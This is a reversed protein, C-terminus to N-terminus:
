PLINMDNIFVADIVVSVSDRRALVDRGFVLKIQGIRGYVRRQCTM